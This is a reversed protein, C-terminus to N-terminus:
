IPKKNENSKRRIWIRMGDAACANHAKRTVYMQATHAATVKMKEELVLECNVWESKWVRENWAKSWKKYVSEIHVSFAIHPTYIPHTACRMSDYKRHSSMAHTCYTRLVLSYSLVKQFNFETKKENSPSHKENIQVYLSIYAYNDHCLVSRLSKIDAVAQSVRERETEKKIDKQM